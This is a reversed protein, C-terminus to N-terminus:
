HRFWCCVCPTAEHRVFSFSACRDQVLPFRVHFMHPIKGIAELFQRMLMPSTVALYLPRTSFIDLFVLTRIWQRVSCRASHPGFFGSAAYEEPSVWVGVLQLFVEPAKKRRKEEEENEERPPSASGGGGHLTRLRTSRCPTMFEATSCRCTRRTSRRRWSGGGPRRRRNSGRWSSSASSASPTSTSSANTTVSSALLVAVAAAVCDVTVAAGQAEPEKLVVLRTGSSTTNQGRPRQEDRAGGDSSHHLAAALEMAVTQRKHRVTARLRRQRRRM